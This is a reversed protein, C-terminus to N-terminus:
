AADFQGVVRNAQVVHLTRYREGDHDHVSATM